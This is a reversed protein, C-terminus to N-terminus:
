RLLTRIFDLQGEKHCKPDRIAKLLDARTRPGDYRGKSRPFLAHAIAHHNPCLLVLNERDHSGGRCVPVIHHVCLLRHLLQPAKWGCAECRDGEGAKLKVRRYHATGRQREQRQNTEEM